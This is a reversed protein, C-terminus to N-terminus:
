QRSAPREPSENSRDANAPLQLILEQLPGLSGGVCSRQAPLEAAGPTIGQFQCVQYEGPELDPLALASAGRRVAQPGQGWRALQEVPVFTGGHFLLAGRAAGPTPLELVLTGGTTELPIELFTGSEAATQMMRLAHGTAHILISVAPLGAPLTLTFSGDPRSVAEAVSAVGGGLPLARLRAGPVPGRLSSVRGQIEAQRRAVLRLPVGDRGEELQVQVWGSTRQGARAEISSLGAPLGRIDFRGREDAHAQSNKGPGHAVLLSARPLPKGEEDIVEGQLRTAPVELDLRAVGSGEAARVEVPGLGLRLFPEDSLLDVAWEGEEPLSGEFRGEGDAEFRVKRWGSMGGFWLTARLPEDGMRVRGEVRLVPISIRVPSTGAILELEESYRSSGARDLVTLRYSGPAVGAREWSGEPNAAGTVPEGGGMGWLEVRWATGSPDAPPDILVEVRLPPALRLPERIETELGSRVEVPAVRAPAAGPGTAKVVYVGPILDELQFFGREDVATQRVIEALEPPLPSQPVGPLHPAIEVRIGSGAKGEPSPKEQRVWGVVSSGRQLRVPGLDAVAGRLVAIEWLYRPIRGETRLRLDLRGAPVACRIRGDAIPCVVTAVPLQASAADGPVPTFRVDLRAPMEEGQPVKLAASIEGTRFLRLPVTEGQPGAAGAWDPPSWVGPGEAEIRWAGGPPVEVEASGPAVLSISRVNGAPDSLPTLRVTLLVPSPEQGTPFLAEIRLTRAAAAPGLLALLLLCAWICRM